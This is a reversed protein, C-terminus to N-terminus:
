QFHTLSLVKKSDALILYVSSFMNKPNLEILSDIEPSKEFKTIIPYYTM